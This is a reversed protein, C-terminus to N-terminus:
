FIWGRLKPLHVDLFILDIKRENLIKMAVIADTCAKELKLLPVQNIFDVMVETALPEDEIVICKLTM